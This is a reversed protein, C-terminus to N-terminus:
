RNKYRKSAKRWGQGSTKPKKQKRKQVKQLIALEIRADNLATHREEFDTGSIYRYVVETGTLPNGKESIYGHEDCWQIYKDTDCITNGAYDWIDMIQVNCPFFWNRFGNSVDKMTRNLAQKDLNANYAWVEKVNYTKCDECFTYWAQLMSIPLWENYLGEQYQPLKSTYYASNMLNDNFFTDTIVFSREVTGEPTVVIYGLDYVNSQSAHACDDNPCDCTPATETDLVIYNKM